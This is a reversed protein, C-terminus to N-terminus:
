PALGGDDGPSMAMGGEAASLEDAGGGSNGRTGGGFGSGKTMTSPTM